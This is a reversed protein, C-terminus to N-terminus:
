KYLPITPRRNLIQGATRCYSRAVALELAMVDQVNFGTSTKRPVIDFNPPKADSSPWRAILDRLALIWSARQEVTLLIIPNPDVICNKSGGAIGQLRELIVSPLDWTRKLEVEFVDFLFNINNLQRLATQIVHTHVTKDLIDPANAELRTSNIDFRPPEPLGLYATFRLRNKGAESEANIPAPDFSGRMFTRWARRTSFDPPRLEEGVRRFWTMKIKTWTYVFRKLQLVNDVGTFIDLSPVLHLSPKEEPPIEGDVTKWAETPKPVV